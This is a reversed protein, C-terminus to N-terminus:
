NKYHERIAGNFDNETWGCLNFPLHSTNGYCQCWEIYKALLEKFPIRRLEDFTLDESIKSGM